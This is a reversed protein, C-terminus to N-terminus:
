EDQGGTKSTTQVSPTIKRLIIGNNRQTRDKYYIEFPKVSKTPSKLNNHKRFSSENSVPKLGEKDLFKKVHIRFKMTLESNSGFSLGISRDDYLNLTGVVRQKNNYLRHKAM